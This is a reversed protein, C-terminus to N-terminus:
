SFPHCYQFTLTALKHGHTALFPLNSQHNRFSSQHNPTIGCISIKREDNSQVKQFFTLTSVIFVYLETLWSIM